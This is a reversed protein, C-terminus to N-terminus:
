CVNAAIRRASFIRGRGRMQKQDPACPRVSRQRKLDLARQEFKREGILMRKDVDLLKRPHRSADDVMRLFRSDVATKSHHTTLRILGRRFRSMRALTPSRQPLGRDFRLRELTAVVDRGSLGQGVDIAV